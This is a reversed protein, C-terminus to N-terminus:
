EDSLSLLWKFAESKIKFARNPTSPKNFKIYFNFIIKKALNDIFVANGLTFREAEMSACYNRCEDNMFMFDSPTFYIRMKRGKGLEEVAATLEKLHALEISILDEHWDITIISNSLLHTTFIGELVISQIIAPAEQLNTM